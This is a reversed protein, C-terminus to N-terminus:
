PQAGERKLLFQAVWLDLELVGQEGGQLSMREIRELPADRDLRDLLALMQPYGGRLRLRARVEISNTTQATTGPTSEVVTLGSADAAESLRRVLDTALGGSELLRSAEVAPVSNATLLEQVHVPIPATRLSPDISAGIGGAARLQLRYRNALPTFVLTHVLSFLALVAVAVLAPAFRRDLSNM